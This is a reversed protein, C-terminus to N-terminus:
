QRIQSTPLAQATAGTIVWRDDRKELKVTAQESDQTPQGNRQDFTTLDVRASGHATTESDMAVKADVFQVDVGGAPPRFTSVAGLIADRSAIERDGIRIHIDQFLLRAALVDGRCVRLRQDALDHRSSGPM